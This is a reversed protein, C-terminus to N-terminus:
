VACELKTSDEVGDRGEKRDSVFVNFIKVVHELVLKLFVYYRVCLKAGFIGPIVENFM